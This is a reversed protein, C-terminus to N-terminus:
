LFKFVLKKFWGYDVLRSCLPTLIPGLVPSILVGLLGEERRKIRLCEKIHVCDYAPDQIRRAVDQGSVIAPKIGEGTLGSALGAADGTLYINGFEFGRYDYNITYGEFRAGTLDFRAKCWQDFNERLRQIFDPSKKACAAYGTGVSIIEKQPFIWNYTVGFKEFDLYFEMRDYKGPIMYQYAVLFKETRLGVFRRVVSNIGDAGVLFDYAFEEGDTTVVKGEEVTKVQKDFLIRAGASKARETLKENLLKRDLTGIFYVSGNGVPFSSKKTLLFFQNFERELIDPSVEAKIYKSDIGGGCVKYSPAANKELVTVEFAPNKALEAACSLGAPGAGIIVVKKTQM